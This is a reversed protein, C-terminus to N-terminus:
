GDAQRPLTRNKPVISAVRWEQEYAWDTKNFYQTGLLAEAVPKSSDGYVIHHAWQEASLFEPRDQYKVERALLWTSDREASCEFEILVGSNKDAYHQWM